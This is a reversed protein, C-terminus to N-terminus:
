LNDRPIPGTVPKAASIQAVSFHWNTSRQVCRVIELDNSGSRVTVIFHHSPPLPTRPELGGCAVIVEVARDTTPGSQAIGRIRGMGGRVGDPFDFLLIREARNPHFPRWGKIDQESAVRVEQTADPEVPSPAVSQKPAPDPGECGSTLCIPILALCMGRVADGRRVERVFLLQGPAGSKGRPSVARQVGASRDARDRLQMTSCRSTRRGCM